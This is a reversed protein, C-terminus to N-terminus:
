GGSEPLGRTGGQRQLRECPAPPSQRTWSCLRIGEQGAWLLLHGTISNALEPVALPHATVRKRVWYVRGKALWSSSILTSRKAPPPPALVPRSIPNPRGTCMATLWLGAAMLM